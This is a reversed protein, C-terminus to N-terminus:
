LAELDEFDSVQWENICAIFDQDCGGLSVYVDKAIGQSLEVNGNHKFYDDVAAATAADRRDQEIKSVPPLREWRAHTGEVQEPAEHAAAAHGGDTARPLRSRSHRIEATPDASPMPQPSPASMPPLQVDPAPAPGVKDKKKKPQQSAFFLAGGALLLLTMPKM